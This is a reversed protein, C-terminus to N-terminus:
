TILSTCRCNQYTACEPSDLRARHLKGVAHQLRYSSDRPAVALLPASHAVRQEFLRLAEDRYWRSVIQEIHATKSDDTVFVWLEGKRREPPTVFLSRAVRLVLMEGLLDLAEGDLWRPPAVPM